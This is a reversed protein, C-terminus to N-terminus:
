EGNTNMAEFEEGDDPIIFITNIKENIFGFMRNRYMYSDFRIELNSDNNWQIRISPKDFVKSHNCDIFVINMLNITVSKNRENSIITLYKEENNM